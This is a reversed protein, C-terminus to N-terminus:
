TNGTVKLVLNIRTVTSVSDLNFEIIDGASVATSAWGSVAENYFKNGGLSPKNGSVIISAGGRKIDIVASGSADAALYWNGITGSYPLTLYGKSGTSPTSGGGDITIGPGHTITQSGGADAWAPNASVGLTRLFQGSTGATLKTWTGDGRYLFDGWAAGSVAADIVISLTNDTAVAASSKPNSKITFANMNALKANTVVAPNITAAFSGTGTGSVDGTLTITQDGTNTGSLNSGGIVSSASVTTARLGANASVIGSFTATSGTLLGSFNGTTSSLGANASVIGSFIAAVGTLNGSFNGTTSSLGANASVIGSFSAAAGSLLGTITAASATIRGTAAQVDGTVNLTTASVVGTTVNDPTINGLSLTIQGETTVPSGAVGIGDTGTVGASTVTGSGATGNSAATIRGQADVTISALTYAGASVATNNLFIEGTSTIPNPSASLGVGASISTVTGTGAASGNSAFTLQGRSNVTLTALTYTGASVSTDAISITGGSTIPNPSGTLGGGASITTVTGNGGGGASTEWVETIGGITGIITM